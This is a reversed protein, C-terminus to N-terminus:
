LNHVTQTSLLACWLRRAYTSDWLVLMSASARLFAGMNLLGEAKSVSSEQDICVQDMFVSERPRHWLLTAVFVLMGTLLSWVSTLEADGDFLQLKHCDPLIEFLFLLMMIVACCTGLTTALLGNKLIMLMIIKRGSQGRWSHSLFQDIKQTMFSWHHFSRAHPRM